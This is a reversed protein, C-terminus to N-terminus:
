HMFFFICTRSRENYASVLLSDNQLRVAILWVLYYLSIQQTHIKNICKGRDIGLFIIVAVVSFAIIM